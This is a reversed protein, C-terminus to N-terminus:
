HAQQRPPLLYVLHPPPKVIRYASYRLHYMALHIRAVARRVAVSIIQYAKSSAMARYGRDQIAGEFMENFWNKFQEDWRGGHEIAAIVLHARAAPASKCNWKAQYSSVKHERAAVNTTSAIFATPCAIAPPKVAPPKAAPPPPRCFPNGDPLANSHLTVDLVAAGKPGTTGIVMDALVFQGHRRHQKQAFPAPDEPNQAAVGIGGQAPQPMVEVGKPPFYDAM